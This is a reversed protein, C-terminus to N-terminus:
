RLSQTESPADRLEDWQWAGERARDNILEGVKRAYRRAIVARRYEREKVCEVQQDIYHMLTAWLGQNDIM